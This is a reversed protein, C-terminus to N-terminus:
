RRGSDEESLERWRRIEDVSRWGPKPKVLNRENLLVAKALNRSREANLVRLVAERVVRSWNVHRLSEMRRKTEEDVRVTIMPL